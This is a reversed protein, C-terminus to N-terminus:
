KMIMMISSEGYSLRHRKDSKQASLSNAFNFRGHDIQESLFQNLMWELCRIHNWLEVYCFLVIIFLLLYWYSSKLRLFYRASKKRVCKWKWFMRTSNACWKMQDCPVLLVIYTACFLSIFSFVWILVHCRCSYFYKFKYLFPATSHSFASLRRIFSIWIGGNPDYLAWM